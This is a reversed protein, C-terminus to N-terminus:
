TNRLAGRSRSNQLHAVKEVMQEIDTTNLVQCLKSFSEGSVSQKLKMYEELLRTLWKWIQHTSPEKNFSGSPSCQVIMDSLRSIFKQTKKYKLYVDKLKSIKERLDSLSDANLMKKADKYLSKYPDEIRDSMQNKREPSESIGRKEPIDLKHINVKNTQAKMTQAGFTKNKEKTRELDESNKLKNITDEQYKITKQMVENKGEMERVTKALERKEIKVSDLAQKVDSNEKVIYDNKKWLDEIIKKLETESKELLDKDFILKNMEKEKKQLKEYQFDLQKELDQIRAKLQINESVLTKKEDSLIQIEASLMEQRQALRNLIIHNTTSDNQMPMSSDQDYSVWDTTRHM